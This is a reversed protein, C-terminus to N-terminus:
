VVLQPKYLVLYINRSRFLNLSQLVSKLNTFICHVIEILILIIKSSGEKVGEKLLLLNIYKNLIVLM